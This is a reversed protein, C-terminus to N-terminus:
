CMSSPSGPVHLRLGFNPRFLCRFPPLEIQQKSLRPEKGGFCVCGGCKLKLYTHIKHKSKEGSHPVLLPLITNTGDISTVRGWGLSRHTSM